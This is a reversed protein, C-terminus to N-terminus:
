ILKHRKALRAGGGGLKDLGSAVIDISQYTSFIVCMDYLDRRSLQEIFSAANTSPPRELEYIQGGEDRGASDDSCVAIYQYKGLSNDSWERMTQQILSISPVLYLVTKCELKEAIRLSTITKGTGCAMLLKGRSHSKFGNIVDSCVKEQDRRLAKPETVIIKDFHSSWNKISCKRFSSKNLLAIKNERITRESEPTIKDSTCAYIYKSIGYSKCATLFKTVGAYDLPTNDDYCKCQIGVYEGTDAIQGVIDIGTDRRNREPWDKFWWVTSFYNKYTTDKKFFNVVLEEFKTGRKSKNPESRITALLKDFTLGADSATSM